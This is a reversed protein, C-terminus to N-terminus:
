FGFGFSFSFIGRYNLLSFNKFSIDNIGYLSTFYKRHAKSLIEKGEKTRGNVYREKM